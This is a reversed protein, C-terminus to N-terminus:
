LLSGRWRVRAFVMKAAEDASLFEPEAESKHTTLAARGDVRVQVHRTVMREGDPKFVYFGDDVVKTLGTVVLMADGDDIDPKNDEGRNFVILLKNHPERIVAQLWTRAFAIHERVDDAM